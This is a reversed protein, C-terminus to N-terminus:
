WDGFTCTRRCQTRHKESAFHARIEAARAADGQARTGAGYHSTGWAARPQAGAALEDCRPCQGAPARKGFPLAKGPQSTNCSHRTTTEANM